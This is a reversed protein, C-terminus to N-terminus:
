KNSKVKLFEEKMASRRNYKKIWQDILQDVLVEGKPYKKMRKLYVAIMQYHSRGNTYEVMEECKEQYLKLIRKPYRNKLISEYLQLEELYRTEEFQLMMEEYMKEETLIKLYSGQDLKIEEIIEEKVKDWEGQDYQNKLLKYYEYSGGNSRTLTNILMEILNEKQNHKQYHKILHKIAKESIRGKPNNILDKFLLIGEQFRQLEFYFEALKLEVTKNSSNEKLFDIIEEVPYGLGKMINFKMLFPESVYQKQHEELANIKQNFFELKKLLYSEELFFDGLLSHWREDYIYIEPEDYLKLIYDFIRSYLPDNVDMADILLELLELAEDIIETTTGLSDDIAVTELRKILYKIVELVISGYDSHILNTISTLYRSMELSFDSAQYYSIFHDRGLYSYFIEDVEYIYDQSSINNYYQSFFNKFNQALQENENLEKIIFRKLELSDIKNVIDEIADEKDDPQTLVHENEDEDNNIAFLVAAM